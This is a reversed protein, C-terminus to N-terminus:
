ARTEKQWQDYAEGHRKRAAVDSIGLAFGIDDWSLGDARCILVQEQEIMDVAARLYPLAVLAMDALPDVDWTLRLREARGRGVHAMRIGFQDDTWFERVEDVHARRVARKRQKGTTM